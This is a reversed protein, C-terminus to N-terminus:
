LPRLRRRGRRAVRFKRRSAPSSAVCNLPLTPSQDPQDVSVDVEVLRKEGLARGADLAGHGLGQAHRGVGLPKECHLVDALPGPLHEILGHAGARGGHSAMDLDIRDDADHHQTEVLWVIFPQRALALRDAQM